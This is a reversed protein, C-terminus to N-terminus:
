KTTFSVKDTANLETHDPTVARVELTHKGPKVGNLTGKKSEFMGMLQGDVYAHVHSARKGKTLNFEVPVSDGTFVEDPKPSVIKVKAGEAPKLSSQPPMKEMDKMPMDMGKMDSHQAWVPVIMAATWLAVLTATLLSKM